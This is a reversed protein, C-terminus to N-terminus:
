LLVLLQFGLLYNLSSRIDALLLYILESKSGNLSHWSTASSVPIFISEMSCRMSDCIIMRILSLFILLKAIFLLVGKSNVYSDM